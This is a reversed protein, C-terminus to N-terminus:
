RQARTYALSGVLNLSARALQLIPRVTEADTRTEGAGMGWRIRRRTACRRSTLVREFGLDILVELTAAKDAVDFARHFAIGMGDAADVFRACASRDVEGHPTLAGVVVGDCGLSRCHAIDDLITALELEDYVFDGARPRIPVYLPIMLGHSGARGARGVSHNRPDAEPVRAGQEVADLARGGSVLVKWAAQNAAVGFDWTSCVRPVATAGSGPRVPSKNAFGRGTLAIGSAITAGQLFRKRNM